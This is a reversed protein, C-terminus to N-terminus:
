VIVLEKEKKYIYVKLEERGLVTKIDKVTELGEEVSECELYDGSECMILYMKRGEKRGM